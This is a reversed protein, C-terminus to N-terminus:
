YTGGHGEVVSQVVALGLGVDEGHNKRGRYYFREFIHPLDEPDIGSGTDRVWLRM